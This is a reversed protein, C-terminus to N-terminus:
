ARSEARNALALNRDYTKSPPSQPLPDLLWRSLTAMRKRISRRMKGGLLFFAARHPMTPPSSARRRLLGYEDLIERQVRAQAQLCFLEERCADLQAAKPALQEARLEDQKWLRALVLTMLRANQAVLRPHRQLLTQVTDARRPNTVTFLMSDYHKRYFFFEAPLVDGELGREHLSLTFDWGQESVLQEDYAAAGEFVERRYVNANAGGTNLFPMLAPVFGVPVWAFDLVGFCRVHSTVYSLSPNNELAEVAAALYGPHIKDDADLMLFYDGTAAAIGANRASALGGNAKRVKVVGKVEEFVANSAPDTSGDNVLVIEVEPWTSRRVSEITEHLYQGQNFFPIIVSVKKAATGRWDRPPRDFGAVYPAAEEGRRSSAESVARDLRIDERGVRRRFHEAIEESSAVVVQAHRVAYDELEFDCITTTFLPEHGNTEFRRSLSDLCRVILSTDPFENLLRHARITAFGESPDGAFEIANLPHKGALGRLTRLVQYSYKQNDCLFIENLDSPPETQIFEVGEPLAPMDKRPMREAMLFVRNGAAVLGSVRVRIAEADGTEKGVTRAVCVVNM